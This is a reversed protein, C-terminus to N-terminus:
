VIAKCVETFLQRRDQAHIIANNFESMAAYFDRLRAVRLEATKQATIDKGVGRYGKFAGNEDFIPSGTISVFIISGDPTVRRYVFDQFGKRQALLAKHAKLADEDFELGAIEWRRLGIRHDAPVGTADGVTSSLFSFRLEEDQEWYWDSSMATLARFREESERIARQARTMATVDEAMSLYGRLEGAANSLITNHWRCVIVEGSKTINENVGDSSSAGHRLDAIRGAVAPRENEPIMLDYPSRGLAEAKSFGFIREAAPNWDTIRFSSDLIICAIPMDQFQLSLREEKERLALEALKLATIDRGIGRYGKFAGEADFIPEGSILAYHVQGDQPYRKLVLDRFPRRADLDAQHRSRAEASEFENALEFRTKGLSQPGSLGARDKTSGSISIFRLNADQEWYWDSSLESLNRFRQANGDADLIARNREGNVAAVLLTTISHITLFVHLLVLDIEVSVGAFPGTGRATGWAAIALLGANALATFRIDHALAIWLAFPLVFYTVGGLGFKNILLGGFVLYCMALQILLLIAVYWFRRPNWDLVPSATWTLLLPALLVIGLSDGMWWARSADFFAPWALGGFVALGLPGLLAAPLPAITAAVVILSILDRLRLMRVGFDFVRRLLLAGLLAELSNGLGAVTSAALNGQMVYNAALAGIFVGPVFRLGGLVVAALAIGSAPWVTSIVPHAVAYEFGIRAALFYALALGAVRVIYASPSPGALKRLAENLQNM